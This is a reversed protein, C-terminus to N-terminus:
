NVFDYSAPKNKTTKLISGWVPSPQNLLQATRQKIQLEIKARQRRLEPLAVRTVSFDGESGATANDGLTESMAADIAKRQAYLRDLTVDRAM